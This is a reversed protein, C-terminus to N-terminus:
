GWCRYPSHLLEFFLPIDVDPINPSLIFPCGKDGANLVDRINIDPDILERIVASWSARTWFHTCM